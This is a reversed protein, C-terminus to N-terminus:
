QTQHNKKYILVGGIVALLFVGAAVGVYLYINSSSQVSLNKNDNIEKVFAMVAQEQEPRLQQETVAASPNARIRNRINSLSGGDEFSGSDSGSSPHNKAKDKSRLEAVHSDSISQKLIHLGKLKAPNKEKSISKQIDSFFWDQNWQNGKPLKNMFNWYNYIVEDQKKIADDHDSGSMSNSVMNQANEYGAVVWIPYVSLTEKTNTVM